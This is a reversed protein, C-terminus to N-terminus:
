RQQGRGTKQANMLAIKYIVACDRANLLIMHKQGVSLPERQALVAILVHDAAKHGAVPPVATKQIKLLTNRPWDQM